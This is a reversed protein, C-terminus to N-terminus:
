SFKVTRASMIVTYNGSVIVKIIHKHDKRALHLTHKYYCGFANGRLIMKSVIIKNSIKAAIASDKGFRNERIFEPFPPDLLKQAKKSSNLANLSIETM